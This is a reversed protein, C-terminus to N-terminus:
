KGLKNIRGAIYVTKKDKVLFVFPHNVAAIFQKSISGFDAMDIKDKQAGEDLEIQVKHLIENVLYKTPGTMGSLNANEFLDKIGFNKLAEKLKLTIGIKFKPLLIRFNSVVDKPVLDNLTLDNLNQIMQHVGDMAKPQLIIMSLQPHAYPIEISYAKLKEIFNYQCQGLRSMTSIKTTYFDGTKQPIYFSALKTDSVQFPEKWKGHFSMAGIQIIQTENTLENIAKTLKVSTKDMIWDSIKFKKNISSGFNVEAVSTNFLEEYKQSYRLDVLTNKAVYTRSAKEFTGYRERKFKVINHIIINIINDKSLDKSLQLTEEIEDSTNGEAGLYLQMLSEKVLYPSFIVNETDSGSLVSKILSTTVIDAAILQFVSSGILVIALVALQKGFM